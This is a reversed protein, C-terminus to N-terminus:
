WEWFNYKDYMSLRFKMEDLEDKTEELKAESESLKKELDNIKTNQTSIITKNEEILKDKEKIKVEYEAKATTLESNAEFLQAQLLKITLDNDKVRNRLAGDGLQGLISCTLYTILVASVMTLIIASIMAGTGYTTKENDYDDYDDYDDYRDQQKKDTNNYGQRITELSKEIDKVVDDELKGMLLTDEKNM